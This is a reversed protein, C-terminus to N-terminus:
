PDCVNGGAASGQLEARAPARGARIEEVMVDECRHGSVSSGTFSENVKSRWSRVTLPIWGLAISGPALEDSHDFLPRVIFHVFNTTFDHGAFAVALALFWL